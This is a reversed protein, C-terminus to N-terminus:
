LKDTIPVSQGRLRKAIRMCAASAGKKTYSLLPKGFSAALTVSVDEPVIGLLPLGAQDMVDDVTLKMESFLKPRIRNVM